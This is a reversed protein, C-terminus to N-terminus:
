DTSFEDLFARLRRVIAPDGPAADLAEEALSRAAAADIGASLSIDIAAAESSATATSQIFSGSSGFTHSMGIGVDDLRIDRRGAAATPLPDNRLVSPRGRVFLGVRLENPMDPFAVALRRM